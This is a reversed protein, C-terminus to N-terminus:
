GAGAVARRRALATRAVAADRFPVRRRGIVQHQEHGKGAVVVVDGPRADRVARSIAEERDVIALWPPPGERPLGRQIDEIIARPDESRPNDSTLVIRDSLRAAVAGMLSRKSVERDGGCGFVTVLGGEALARIAELTGRLAADTHAFDVIVTVDDSEGTVVQMRGPVADLARVGAEIGRAPVDLAAATAAAALVNYANFRGLLPSRLRLKGAPSCADMSIGSRSVALRLASVDASADLGYTVPRAVDGLLRRGYEDDANIVSPADSPLGAFLLRKAAFYREMDGHFDLHDRTLNTFVAAAFRVGDVRRLALAQSSVEMACAKAGSDRMRALLAQVDAAEPTTREAPREDGPGTRHAVTSIRGTPIGSQEFISELLYTTTTKGNTGTTGVVRLARSPDRHLAAAAAALAARADAVRIWPVGTAAPPATEAIVACAGRDCADAAFSAGDHRAGRIAVFVAGPTVSRSDYALGTVPRALVAAGAGAPREIGARALLEGLSARPPSSSPMPTAPM